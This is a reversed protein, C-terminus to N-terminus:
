ENLSANQRARLLEHEAVYLRCDGLRHIQVELPEEDLQSLKKKLESIPIKCVAEWGEELESRMDKVDSHDNLRDLSHQAFSLECPALVYGDLHLVVAIAPDITDPDFGEDEDLKSGTLARLECMAWCLQEPTPHHIDAANASVGDCALAFAFLVDHDYVWTRTTVITMAAFVKAMLEDTTAIRKRSLEIRITELEWAGVTPGLLKKIATWAVSPTVAPDQLVSKDSM